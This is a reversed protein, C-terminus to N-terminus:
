EGLVEVGVVFAGLTVALIGSWKLTEALATKEGSIAM